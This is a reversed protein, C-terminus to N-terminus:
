GLFAGADLGGLGQRLLPINYFASNRHDIWTESVCRDQFVVTLIVVVVGSIQTESTHHEPGPRACYKDWVLQLAGGGYGGYGPWQKGSTGTWGCDVCMEPLSPEKGSVRANFAGATM